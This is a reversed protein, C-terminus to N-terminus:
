VVSAVQLVKVSPEEEVGITGVVSAKNGILLRGQALLNQSTNLM